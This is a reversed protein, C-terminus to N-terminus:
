GGSWPLEPNDEKFATLEERLQGRCGTFFGKAAVVHDRQGLLGGLHRERRVESEEANEPNAEWDELRSIREVAMRTVESGAVGAAAYLGVQLRPYGDPKGMAYGLYCGLLAEAALTAYVFYSQDECVQQALNGPTGELKNGAFRALEQRVEVDITEEIIEFARRGIPAESDPVRERIEAGGEVVEGMIENTPTGSRFEPAGRRGPEDDALVTFVNLPLDVSPQRTDLSAMPCDDLAVLRVMPECDFVEVRESGEIGKYAPVLVSFDFWHEGLVAAVQIESHSSCFVEYNLANLHPSTHGLRGHRRANLRVSFKQSNKATSGTRIWIHHHVEVAGKAYRELIAEPDLVRKVFNPGHDRLEKGFDFWGKLRERQEKNPPM